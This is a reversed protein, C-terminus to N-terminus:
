RGAHPVERDLPAQPAPFGMRAVCSMATEAQPGAASHCQRACLSPLRGPLRASGGSRWSDAWPPRMGDKGFGHQLKVVERQADRLRTAWPIFEPLSAQRWVRRDLPGPGMSCYSAAEGQQAGVGCRVELSAEGIAFGISIEEGPWQKKLQRARDCDLEKNVVEVMRLRRGLAGAKWM